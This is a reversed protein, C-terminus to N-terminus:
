AAAGDAVQFERVTSAEVPYGHRHAADMAAFGMAEGEEPTWTFWCLAVTRGDTSLDDPLRSAQLWLPRSWAALHDILPEHDENALDALDFPAPLRVTIEVSWPGRALRVPIM